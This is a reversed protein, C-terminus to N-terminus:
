AIAELTEIELQEVQEYTFGFQKVLAEARDMCYNSAEMTLNSNFLRVAVRYAEVVKNKLFTDIEEKSSFCGTGIYYGKYNRM